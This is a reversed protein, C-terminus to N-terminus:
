KNVETKSSDENDKNNINGIQSKFQRNTTKKSARSHDKSSSALKNSSKKINLRKDLNKNFAVYIKLKERKVKK